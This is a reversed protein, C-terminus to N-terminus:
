FRYTARVYYTRGLPDTYRPDYGQQFTTTQNTYPPDEDFLNKIGATIDIQKNGSYTGSLTWTSYADVRQEFQPEVDNQDDYGSLYRNTLTATWPAMSWAITANHRWRFVPTEDAYRGANRTFPGGRENQYDYKDVYTGDITLTMNGWPKRPLRYLLSLDVGRTRVEGLNMTNALVYDLRNGAANYFFLNQYKQYDGFITQEALESIQDELRIDWYDASVTLSRTPEFVVGASFTRSTEPQVDLSGGSRINQQQDCVLNPNAGPVATGNPCLRPDDWPEATNTTTQPGYIDYLTPARFGENYSGRFLLQPTPQWRVAVKPNFNGGVDTYYDYRGALNVELNKIVPVNFETFIARITRSGRQDQADAYGSSSAQSALGRNVLYEAKDHRVEGGIAFGLPGAPLTRLDRSAKFDLASSRIKANLFEGM